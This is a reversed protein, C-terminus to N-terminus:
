ASGRKLRQLVLQYVRQANHGWIRDQEQQSYGATVMRLLAVAQQYSGALTCVPWDSGFMLRASGLVDLAIDTHARLSTLLADPEKHPSATLFGSLKMCVNPLMRLPEITTAFAPTDQATIRAGALHDLVFMVDPHARILRLAQPMAALNLLLDCSLHHQALARLGQEVAAMDSPEIPLHLRVGKFRPDRSFGALAASVSPSGLDVWGVVGVIYPYEDCLHLLWPIEDATNTAHVLVAHQIGAAQMDPLVHPPLRDQYLARQDPQIWGYDFRSLQWLHQHSDITLMM